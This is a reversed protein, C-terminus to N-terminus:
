DAVQENRMAVGPLNNLRDIRRRLNACVREDEPHRALQLREYVPERGSRSIALCKM